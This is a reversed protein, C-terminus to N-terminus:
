SFSITTTAQIRSVIDSINDAIELSANEDAAAFDLRFIAKQQEEAAQRFGIVHRGSQALDILKAIFEAKIDCLVEISAAELTVECSSRHQLGQSDAAAGFAVAAATEREPSISIM